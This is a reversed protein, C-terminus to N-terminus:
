HHFVNLLTTGSNNGLMSDISRFSSEKQQDQKSPTINLSKNVVPSLNNITANHHEHKSINNFLESYSGDFKAHFAATPGCSGEPVKFASHVDPTGNLVPLTETKPNRLKESDMKELTAGDKAFKEGDGFLSGNMEETKVLTRDLLPSSPSNKMANKVKSIEERKLVSAADDGDIKPTTENTNQIGSNVELANRQKESNKLNDSDTANKDVCNMSTETKLQNDCQKQDIEMREEKSVDGNMMRGAEQKVEEKIEKSHESTSTEEKVTANDKKEEKVVKEKKINDKSDVVEARLSVQEAVLNDMLEGSELGEM